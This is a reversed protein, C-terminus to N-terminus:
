VNKNHPNILEIIVKSNPEHKGFNLIFIANDKPLNNKKNPFTGESTNTNQYRSVVLSVLDSEDLLSFYM